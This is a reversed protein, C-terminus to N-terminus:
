TKIIYNMVIYPQLNQGAGSGTSSTAGGGGDAQTYNTVFGYGTNTTLQNYQGPPASVLNTNTGYEARIGHQHNPITHTHAQLNKDGGTKALANFETQTADYGVPIKGKLNPLNFTTTGNGTGYTTGISDFLEKYKTRSVATGDCLLWGSPATAAATMSVTGIPLLNDLITKLRYFNDNSVQSIDTPSLGPGYPTFNTYSM